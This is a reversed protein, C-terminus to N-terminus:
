QTPNKSPNTFRSSDLDATITSTGNSITCGQAYQLNKAGSYATAPTPTPFPSTRKCTQINLDFVDLTVSSSGVSAVIQAATKDSSCYVGAWYATEENVETIWASVYDLFNSPLTGGLEIDLFVVALTPFGAAAMLNAANEGDTKGQASTLVNCTPCNPNEYQQGVYVPLFGWGITELASRVSKPSSEPMWTSTPHCCPGRVSSTKGLYFGTFYLNTMSWATKMWTTGPYTDTDMGAYVNATAQARYEQKKTSIPM